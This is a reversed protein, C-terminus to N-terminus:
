KMVLASKEIFFNNLSSYFDEGFGRLILANIGEKQMLKKLRKKESIIKKNEKFGLTKEMKNLTKVAKEKSEEFVIICCNRTKDLETKKEILSFQKEGTLCVLYDMATFKKPLLDICFCVHSLTPTCNLNFAVFLSKEKLAITKISKGVLNIKVKGTKIACFVNNKKYIM